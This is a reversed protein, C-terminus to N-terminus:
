RTARARVHRTCSANQALHLSRILAPAKSRARRSFSFTKQAMLTLSSKYTAAYGRVHTADGVQTAIEAVEKATKSKKALLAYARDTIKRHEAICM